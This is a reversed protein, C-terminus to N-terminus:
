GRRPPDSSLRITLNLGGTEGPSATKHMGLISMCKELAVLKDRVKIRRVMGVAQREEGRGQYEEFSEVGGIMAAEDETLDALAKLNYGEDFLRRVDGYAIRAIERCTREATIEAADTVRKLLKAIQEGVEPDALLRSATVYASRPAYGARIAAQTANLDKAYEYAFRVRRDAAPKGTQAM